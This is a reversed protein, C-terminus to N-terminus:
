DEKQSPPNPNPNPKAGTKKGKPESAKGSQEAAGTVNGSSSWLAGGETVIAFKFNGIEL